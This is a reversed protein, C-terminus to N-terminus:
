WIVFEKIGLMGQRACSGATHCLSGLTQKSGFVMQM